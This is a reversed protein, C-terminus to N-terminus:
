LVDCTCYKLIFCCTLQEIVQGTDLGSLRMVHASSVVVTLAPVYGSCCCLWLLFVSCATLRKRPPQWPGYVSSGPCSPLATCRLHLTSATLSTFWIGFSTCSRGGAHWFTFQLSCAPLYFGTLAKCLVPSACHAEARPYLLHIAPVLSQAVGLRRTLCHTRNM